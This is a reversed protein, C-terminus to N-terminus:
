QAQRKEKIHKLIAEAWVTHTKIGPHTGDDGYDLYNPAFSRFPIRETIIKMFNFNIKKDNSFTLLETYCDLVKLFDALLEAHDKKSLEYHAVIVLNAGIKNCYSIVQLIHQIALHVMADSDLLNFFFLQQDKNLDPDRLRDTGLRYYEGNEFWLKRAVGTIGWIVIDDKQIDSRLIQDAAWDIASGPQSIMSFPLNLREAVITGYSVGRNNRRNGSGFPYSCGAIWVQQSETKRLDELEIIAM